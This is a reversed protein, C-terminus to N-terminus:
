SNSLYSFSAVIAKSFSNLTQLAPWHTNIPELTNNSTGIPHRFNQCFLFKSGSSVRDSSHLFNRPDDSTGVLHRFNRRINFQKELVRQRFWPPVDLPQRFNRCPTPLESPLKNEGFSLNQYQVFKSIKFSIAQLCIHCSSVKYDAVFLLANCHDCSDLKSGIILIWINLFYSLVLLNM